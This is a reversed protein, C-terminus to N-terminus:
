WQMLVWKFDETLIDQGKMTEIDSPLYVLIDYNVKTLKIGILSLLLLISSIILVVSKNKCIFESFKKM